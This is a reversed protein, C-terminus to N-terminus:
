GEPYEVDPSLILFSATGKNCNHFTVDLTGEIAVPNVEPSEPELFSVGTSSYLDMLVQNGEVVGLALFWATEWRNDAPFGSVASVTETIIFRFDPCSFVVHDSHM